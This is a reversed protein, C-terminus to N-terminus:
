NLNKIFEIDDLKKEIVEGQTTEIIAYCTNEMVMFCHFLGYEYEYKKFETMNTNPGVTGWVEIRYKVTRM